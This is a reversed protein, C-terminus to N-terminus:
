FDMDGHGMLGEGDMGDMMKVFATGVKFWEEFFRLMEPVGSVVQTCVESVKQVVLKASPAM